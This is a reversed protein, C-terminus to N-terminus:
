YFYRETYLPSETERCYRVIICEGLNRPCKLCMCDKANGKCNQTKFEPCSLCNKAIVEKM